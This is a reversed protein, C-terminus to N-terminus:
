DEEEYIESQIELLLNTTHNITISYKRDEVRALDFHYLILEHGRFQTTVSDVLKQCIYHHTLKPMISFWAQADIAAFELQIQYIEPSNM